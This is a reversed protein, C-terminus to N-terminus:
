RYVYPQYKPDGDLKHKQLFAWASNNIEGARDYYNHTHGKIETLEAAFGRANLADRTRRVVSVPFFADNTGVWMATPIRRKALSIYQDAQDPPLAGAHVATAAFYESEHLGLQVAFIAGASHGFLYMRQPDIQLKGRLEEVLEYIFEPGDAPIQWGSRDLSDPGVLIIGEKKAVSEWREVLSLGIRGSGHLLVIVPAPQGTMAKDPVFLYYARSKGGYTMSEKVTKEATLGSPLALLLSIVFGVIRM